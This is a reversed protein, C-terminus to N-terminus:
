KRHNGYVAKLPVPRVLRAGRDTPRPGPVREKDKKTKETEIKSKCFMFKKLFILNLSHM